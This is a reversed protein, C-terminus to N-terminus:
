PIEVSLRAFLRGNGALAIPLRVTVLDIGPEHNDEVEVVVDDDGHQATTWDNLDTGYQVAPANGMSADSRRFVIVLHTANKTGTPLLESSDSDPGSPDGGIVFEIGNPIGDNDSDAASGAGVIGNATEWSEYPTAVPGTTVTLTGDGAFRGSAHGSGYVGAAQQVGNIFLRDVTDTGTFGLRLTVNSGLFVTADDALGSAALSLTGDWVTTNGAYSSAATLALTGPGTKHLAGSGSVAGALTITATGQVNITNDIAALEVTSALTADGQGDNWTTNMGGGNLVIPKSCSVPNGFSGFGLTGGNVTITGPNSNDVATGYEFSLLGGNVVIDKVTVTTYVISVHNNSIKTFKYNGALTSGFGRLDWRSPGGVTTDGVLTLHQLGDINGAFTTSIIAGLGGVGEGQIFIPEDGFGGTFVDLTAGAAVTTSGAIDGLSNSHASAIIGETLTVAGTFSSNGGLTVTGAGLKEITGTGSIAGPMELTGTRNIVLTANNTIPGSGLAGSSGGDGIRITGADFYNEGSHSNPNTFTLTGTGYKEIEASGGIAAGSFTYNKTTNTISLISPTVTQGVTVTTTAATDDMRAWDGSYFATPTSGGTFVWNTNGEVNWTSSGTGTWTLDGAESGDIVLDITSDEENNVLTGTIRGPLPALELGAFGLGGITGSYNILPYTGIPITGEQSIHIKHKAATGAVVSLTGNVAAYDEVVGGLRFYSEEDTSLSANNFIAAPGVNVLSAPNVGQQLATIINAASEGPSFTVVRAEDINGDFYAQGFPQVSIHPTTNIPTGEFTGSQAVGDIYFTTIGGARIMALHVWTDPTFSGSAGGGPGIWAVNHCSGAWGNNELSLKLAGTDGGVTFVDGNTSGISAARAFVGFAFNDTQLNSFTGSSFWGQDGGMSTDLYATSGTANAHFSASGTTAEGGNIDAGIHRNHGSADQPKNSGGLSGAEGLHYEAYPVITARSAAVGLLTAVVTSTLTQTRMPKRPLPSLSDGNPNLGPFPVPLTPGHSKPVIADCVFAAREPLRM